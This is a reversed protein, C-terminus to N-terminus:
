EGEADAEIAALAEGRNPYVGLKAFRDDKVKGASVWEMEMVEPSARGRMRITGTVLIWDGHEEARWDLIEIFAWLENSRQLWDSLGEYGRYTPGGFRDFLTTLEVDPHCMSIAEDISLRDFADVMRRALEPGREIM